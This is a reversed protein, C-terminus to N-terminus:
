TRRWSREHESANFPAGERLELVFGHTEAAASYQGVSSQCRGIRDLLDFREEKLTELLDPSDAVQLGHPIYATWKERHQHGSYPIVNVLRRLATEMWTSMLKEHRM